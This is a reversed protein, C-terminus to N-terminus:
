APDLAVAITLAVHFAHTCSVYLRADVASFFRMAPRRPWCGEWANRARRDSRWQAILGDTTLRICAPRPDRHARIPRAAANTLMRAPDALAVGSCGKRKPARERAM